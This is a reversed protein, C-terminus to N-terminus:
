HSHYRRSVLTSAVNEAEDRSLGGDYELIAAREEFEERWWEYDPSERHRDTVDSVDRSERTTLDIKRDTVDGMQSPDAEPTLSQDQKNTVTHRVTGPLYRSFADGFTEMLYGKATDTGIRITTPKIKLPALLKAIQRPTIPKGNRWDAWGKDVQKGLHEALEASTTRDKSEFVERIEQLLEVLASGEAEDTDASLVKAAERARKSWTGGCCDAITLLPRWNDAARDNLAPPVDSESEMSRLLPMVDSAWRLAKSRLPQCIEEVNRSRFRDVTEGPTRRRMEIVISRDELTGSLKGILAIAKAGWTCFQKPEHNDGVTRIVFASSRRHGANLVGRLEENGALFTDAEDILLVPEFKEIARFLAAATINSASLSRPVLMSVVELLTTKGSRKMASVIALLASIDFAALVWTHLIWLATSHAAPVSLFVYRRIVSVIEDLLEGGDVETPWPEPQKFLILEPETKTAKERHIAADLLKAPASIGITSLKKLAAERVMVCRLDDVRALLQSLKRVAEEVSTMNAGAQLSEIGSENITAQIPDTTIITTTTTGDITAVTQSDDTPAKGAVIPAVVAEAGREHWLDWFDCSRGDLEPIAVRGTMAEAARMAAELGPNTGDTKIDNDALFVLEAKPALEKIAHAAHQLNGCDMAAIGPLGTASVAAAVTGVGEGILIQNAQLLDGMQYFCGRKRGGKLYDKTGDANIAEVSWVKGDSGQIPILLADKWGRQPWAGRKVLSGLPVSKEIAYPHSGPDGTAASLIIAAKKTATDHRRRQEAERKQHERECRQKFAEREASSLSKVREAQWTERLDTRFDGFVGGSVDEFLVYWGADDKPKGNTAFRHFKGDTHIVDPPNLGAARIADRFQEIAESM